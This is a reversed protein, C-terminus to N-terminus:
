VLGEGGSCVGEGGGSFYICCKQMEGLRCPAREIPRLIFIFPSRSMLLGPRHIPVTISAYCTHPQERMSPAVKQSTKIHGSKAQTTTPTSAWWMPRRPRLLGKRSPSESELQGEREHQHSMRARCSKPQGIQSVNVRKWAGKCSCRSQAQVKM